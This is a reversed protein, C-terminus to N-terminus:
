TPLASTPSITQATAGPIIFNITDNTGFAGPNQAAIDPDGLDNGANIAMIAERLSVMTDGPVVTDAATTVTITAPVARDELLELRPPRQRTRRTKQRSPVSLLRTIWTHMPCRLPLSVTM